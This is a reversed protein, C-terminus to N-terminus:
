NQAKYFYNDATYPVLIQGGVDTSLACGTAPATGGTTNLGQIYTTVTM